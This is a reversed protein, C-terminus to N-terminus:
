VHFSRRVQIMREVAERAEAEGDREIEALVELPSALLQSATAGFDLENRDLAIAGIALAVDRKMEDPEQIPASTDFIVGM